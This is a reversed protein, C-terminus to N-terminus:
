VSLRDPRPLTIGNAGPLGPPTRPLPASSGTGAKNAFKAGVWAKVQTPGGRMFNILVATAILGLAFGSLNGDGPSSFVPPSAPAPPSDPEPAPPSTPSPETVPQDPGPGEGPGPEGTELNVVQPRPTNYISEQAARARAASTARRSQAVTASAEGAASRARGASKAAAAAAGAPM